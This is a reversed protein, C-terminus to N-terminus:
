MKMAKRWRQFEEHKLFSLFGFKNFVDLFGDTRLTDFRKLSVYNTNAHPLKVLDKNRSVIMKGEESMIAQCAKTSGKLEGKLFKAATIKGVRDVGKVEDTDCGAISLITAWQYPPLGWEKKFDEATYLKKSRPSYMACNGNLVQYLDTDTTVIIMNENRYDLAIRAIIDDAELGTQIFSNRFGCRKLV